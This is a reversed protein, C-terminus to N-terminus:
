LGDYEHAYKGGFPLSTVGVVSRAHAGVIPGFVSRMLDSAGDMVMSHEQFDATANVFGTLKIIRQVRELDVVAVQLSKILHLAALVAHEKAEEASVELGM